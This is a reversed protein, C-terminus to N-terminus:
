FLQKRVTVLNFGPIKPCHCDVSLLTRNPIFKATTGQFLSLLHSFVFMQFFLLHKYDQEAPKLRKMRYKEQEQSELFPRNREFATYQLFEFSEDSSCIEFHWQWNKEKLFADLMQSAASLNETLLMIILCVCFWETNGLICSPQCQIPSLAQAGLPLTGNCRLQWTGEKHPPWAM